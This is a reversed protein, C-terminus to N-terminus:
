AADRGVRRLEERREPSVRREADRLKARAREKGEETVAFGHELLLAATEDRTSQDSGMPM